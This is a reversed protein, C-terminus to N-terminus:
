VQTTSERLILKTAILTEGPQCQGTKLWQDLIRMATQGTELMPCEITTLPCPSLYTAPSWNGCGIVSMDRPVSLGKRQLVNMIVVALSDDAAFIATPRQNANLLKDVIKEIKVIESPEADSVLSDELKIGHMGLMDCFGDRLMRTQYPQWYRDTTSLLRTMLAIRRHGLSILHEGALRGAQHNDTNVVVLPIQKGAPWGDETSTPVQPCGNILVTPVNNKYLEYVVQATVSYKALIFGDILKSRFTDLIEGLAQQASEERKKVDAAMSTPLEQIIPVYGLRVTERRIGEFIVMEPNYGAQNSLADGVALGIHKLPRKISRSLLAKQYGLKSATRLVLKRTSDAFSLGPTENLIHTVTARSVGAATAIQQTTVKTKTTKAM